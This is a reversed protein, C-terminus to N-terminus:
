AETLSNKLAFIPVIPYIVVFILWKSRREVKRRLPLVIQLMFILPAAAGQYLLFVFSAENQFSSLCVYPPGLTDGVIDGRSDIEILTMLVLLLREGLSALVLLLHTLQLAIPIMEPEILLSNIVHCALSLFIAGLVLDHPRVVVLEQMISIEFLAINVIHQIAQGIQIVQVLHQQWLHEGNGM